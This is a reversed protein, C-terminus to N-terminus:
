FVFYSGFAKRFRQFPGFFPQARDVQKPPFLLVGIALVDAFNVVLRFGAEV